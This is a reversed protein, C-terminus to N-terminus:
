DRLEVPYFGKTEPLRMQIETVNDLHDRRYVFNKEYEVTRGDINGDEEHTSFKIQFEAFSCPTFLSPALSLSIRFLEKKHTGGM